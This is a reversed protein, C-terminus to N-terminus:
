NIGTKLSNWTKMQLNKIKRDLLVPAQMNAMAEPTLFVSPDNVLSKHTYAISSPVPSPYFIKNTINASVKPDLIYNIFKLANDINVAGKPIAMTDFFLFAGTKPVLVEINFKSKNNIANQRAINLDGSYAVAVCTNKSNLDDIWGITSIKTIYPRVSLLLKSVAKYDAPNTSNPSLGLYVLAPPINDSASDTLTIGCKSLLKAYKPDFVLSWPNAPMPLSGLAKTVAQKNIGPTLYGWRWDVLYQNGPDVGAMKTMLLPDQNKWNPIKSKDLKELLGGKIDLQAYVSGPVVLDYGSDGAMLKAQLSENSDFTDYRVKIGTEKEFNHITDPAIYVAWNYINLTKSNDGAIASSCFSTMAAPLIICSVFRLLLKKM